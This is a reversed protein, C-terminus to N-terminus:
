ERESVRARERARMKKRERAREIERQRESSSEQARTRESRLIKKNQHTYLFHTTDGQYWPSPRMKNYKFNQQLWTM